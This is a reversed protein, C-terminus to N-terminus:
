FFIDIVTLLYKIGNNDKSFAQMGILDAALNEDVGNVNVRRRQFKRTVPEYLKDALDDTFKLNTKTKIPAGLGFNVKARILKGVISKDIRERLTPNFIRSM